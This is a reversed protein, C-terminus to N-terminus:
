YGAYSIIGVKEHSNQHSKACLLWWHIILMPVIFTDDTAWLLM